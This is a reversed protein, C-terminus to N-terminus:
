QDGEEIPAQPATCREDWTIYLRTSDNVSATYAYYGVSKYAELAGSVDSDSFGDCSVSAYKKTSIGNIRLPSAPKIRRKHISANCLLILTPSMSPNDYHMVVPANAAGVPFPVNCLKTFCDEMLIQVDESDGLNFSVSM